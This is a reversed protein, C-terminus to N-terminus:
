TSIEIALEEMETEGPHYRPNKFRVENDWICIINCICWLPHWYKLAFKSNGPVLSQDPRYHIQVKRKEINQLIIWMNSSFLICIIVTIQIM